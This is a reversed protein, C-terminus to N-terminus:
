TAAHLFQILVITMFGSVAAAVKAEQRSAPNAMAPGEFTEPAGDGNDAAADFGCVIPQICPKGGGASLVMRKM